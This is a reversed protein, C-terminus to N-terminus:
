LDGSLMFVAGGDNNIREGLSTVFLSGDPAFSMATPRSVDAIKVATCAPRGGRISEDLRYVGGEEKAADNAAYLNGSKPSYALAVIRRLEVPVQMVVRRSVPNFFQLNLPSQSQPISGTAIVVHGNKGVAVGRAEVPEDAGNLRVPLVDGLTGARVPIYVIGAPERDGWAAVILVDGVRDNPETRTIGRFSRIRAANKGAPPDLDQKPQDAVLPTNTEPLEYLRVFPKEDNDGGAVVLRNRDLFHLSCVGTAPLNDDSPAPVSFGAVAEIGKGATAPFLRVVRGAGNEAVFVDCAEGSDPRVAVAQPNQLGALLKQVAVQVDAGSSPVAPWALCVALLSLALNLIRMRM